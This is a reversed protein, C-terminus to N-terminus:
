RSSPTNPMDRSTSSCTPLRHINLPWPTRAPWDALEVHGESLLPQQIAVEQSGALKSSGHECQIPSSSPRGAWGRVRRLVPCVEALKRTVQRLLQIAPGDALRRRYLLHPGGGEVHQHPLHEEQQVARLDDYWQKHAELQRRLTLLSRRRPPTAHRHSCPPRPASPTHHTPPAHKHPLLALYGAQQM